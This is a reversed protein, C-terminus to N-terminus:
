RLSITALGPPDNADRPRGAPRPLMTAVADLADLVTPVSRWPRPEDPRAAYEGTHVRIARMGAATHDFM